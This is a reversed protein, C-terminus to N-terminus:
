TSYVHSSTIVSTSIISELLSHIPVSSVWGKPTGNTDEIILDGLVSVREIGICPGDSEVWVDRLNPIIETSKVLSTIVLDTISKISVLLGSSKIRVVWM